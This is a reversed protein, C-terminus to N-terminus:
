VMEVFVGKASNKERTARPIPIKKWYTMMEDDQSYTISCFGVSEYFAIEEDTKPAVTVLLGMAAAWAVIEYLLEAAVETTSETQFWMYPTEVLESVLVVEYECGYQNGGARVDETSCVAETVYSYIVGFADKVRTYQVTALAQVEFARVQRDSLGTYIDSSDPFALAFVHDTANSDIRNSMRELLEETQTMRAKYPTNCDDAQEKELKAQEAWVEIIHRLSLNVQAPPFSAAYEEFTGQSRQELQSKARQEGSNLSEGEDYSLVCPDIPFMMLEELFEPGDDETSQDWPNPMTSGWDWEVDEPTQDSAEVNSSDPEEERAISMVPSTLDFRGRV